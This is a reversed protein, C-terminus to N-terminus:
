GGAPVTHLMPANFGAVVPIIHSHLVLAVGPGAVPHVLAGVDGALGRADAVVGPAAVLVRPDAGKRVMGLMHESSM